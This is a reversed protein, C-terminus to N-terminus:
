AVIPVVLTFTTGGLGSGMSVSGGTARLQDLGWQRGLECAGGDRLAPLWERAWEDSPIPPGDDEVTIAAAAAAAADPRWREVTIWLRHTPGLRQGLTLAMRDLTHGFEDPHTIVLEPDVITVSVDALCPLRGQRERMIREVVDVIRAHAVCRAHM